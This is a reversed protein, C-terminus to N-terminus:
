ETQGIGWGFEFTEHIVDESPKEAYRHQDVQAYEWDM